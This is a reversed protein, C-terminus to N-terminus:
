QQDLWNRMRTEESTDLNSTIFFFRLYGRFTQTTTAMNRGLYYSGSTVNYSSLTAATGIQGGLRSRLGNTQNNFRGEIIRNQSKALIFSTDSAQGGAFARSAMGTYIGLYDGVMFRLDYPAGTTNFGCLVHSGIEADAHPGGKGWLFLTGTGTPMGSGQLWRSSNGDFFVRGGGIDYWVKNPTSSTLNAGTKSCSWTNIWNGDLSFKTADTADYFRVLKSGLDLPHWPPGSSAAYYGMNSM